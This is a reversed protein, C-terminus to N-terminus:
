PGGLTGALIDLVNKISDRFATAGFVENFGADRYNAVTTNAVQADFGGFSTVGYIALSFIVYILDIMFGVIAYSFTVLILALVIRPIASQVTIVTQPSINLRFLVGFGIAVIIVVFILYSVNRFARWLPLIPNLSNFGFGTQAYAPQVINLKRGIDAVYSVGSAPATNFLTAMAGTTVGMAGAEPIGECEEYVCCILGLQLASFMGDLTEVDFSEKNFKPDDVAQEFKQTNSINVVALVSTAVFVISLELIFVFLFSFRHKSIYKLLFKM